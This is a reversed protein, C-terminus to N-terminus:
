SLLYTCYINTDHNMPLYNNCFRNENFNFNTPVCMYTDHVIRAQFCHVLTRSFKTIPLVLNNTEFYLLFPVLKYAFYKM